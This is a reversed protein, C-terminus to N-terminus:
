YSETSRNWEGEVLFRALRATQATEIDDPVNQGTTLYSVPLTIKQLATWVSGAGFTEDLKTLVISTAGLPAFQDFNGQIARAGSAASLLLLVEDPQAASLVENLEDLRAADRPSSGATDILVTDCDSLEALALRMEDPSAVVRLPASMLEAYTKLQDVAGIRFTDVTILGVRSTHALRISAALKAITTTKGVGTPGVLAAILRRGPQRQLSRGCRLKAQLTAQITAAAPRLSRDGTQHIQSVLERASAPDMDAAILRAHIAQVDAPADLSPSPISQKLQALVAEISDLRQQLEHPVISDAARQSESRQEVAAAIPEGTSARVRESQAALARAAVTLPRKEAAIRAPDETVIGDVPTASRTSRVPRDLADVMTSTIQPVPATTPRHSARARPLRTEIGLGATIEVEETARQWPLVRPKEIQRTQLIVADNGLERRVLDLAAAMTPARFTRVDTQM